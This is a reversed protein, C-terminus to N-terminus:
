DTHFVAPNLFQREWLQNAEASTLRAHDVAEDWCERITEAVRDCIDSAEHPDLLFVSAADICTQFRSAKSGDTGIAIAQETYGGSRLQPAIDYAPTLTYQHGNWFAAHNRAHDDTNSVAVNMVVRRFLEHLTDTPRTFNTRILAAFDHYTAYRALHEDLGLMTLLSVAHFRHGHDDRDFRDVVLAQRDAIRILSTQAAHVDAKRALFMAAAEAQVVPWADDSRSFKVIRHRPSTVTAKPRAGGVSTGHLLAVALHDPIDAGTALLDAAIQLDDLTADTTDRPEYRGASSQFDIAGFRNSGSLRLYDLLGIADTDAGSTTRGTARYLIVRQGWSDPSADRLTGALAGSTPAQPGPQLALDPGLAIANDRGLYSTGYTFTHAVRGPTIVGAVVPETEDPLWTWVYIPQDDSTM